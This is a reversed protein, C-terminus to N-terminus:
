SLDDPKCTAGNGEATKTKPNASAKLNSRRHFDPTSAFIFTTTAKQV